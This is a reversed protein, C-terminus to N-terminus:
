FLVRTLYVVYYDANLIRTARIIIYDSCHPCTIIFEM